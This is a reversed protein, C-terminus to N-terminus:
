AAEKMFREFQSLPTPHPSVGTLWDDLRCLNIAAATAVHQLHARPEGIPRSRRLGMRRVGQAHTGEIGARQDYVQPRGRCLGEEFLSPLSRLRFRVQIDRVSQDPEVPSTADIEENLNSILKQQGTQYAARLAESSLKTEILKTIYDKLREESAQIEAVSTNTQELVALLIGMQVFMGTLEKVVEGM